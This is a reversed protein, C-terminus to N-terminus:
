ERHPKRQPVSIRQLGRRHPQAGRVQDRGLPGLALLGRSCRFRPSPGTKGCTRSATRARNTVRRSAYTLLLTQQSLRDTNELGIQANVLHKSQGTLPTGDDFVNAAPVASGGTGVPVTTDDGSVKIASKSYTYNGIAV